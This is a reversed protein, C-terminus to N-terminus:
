VEESINAKSMTLEPPYDKLLLAQLDAKSLTPPKLLAEPKEVLDKLLMIARGSYMGDCIRDDFAYVVKVVDRQRMKGRSDPRWERRVIGLSIFLGCTGFDYLHHYPAEVGVSGVNTICVSGHFPSGRMLFRPMMNWSDLKRILWFLFRIIFRPFKLLTINLNESNNGAGRTAERLRKKFTDAINELTTLPSYNGFVWIEEADETLQKKAIFNIGIYNRQWMRYGITFRNLKPKLVITRVAATTFLQFFTVKAKNKVVQQRNFNRLFSLTDTIDIEQESFITGGVRSPMIFPVIRTHPSIDGLYDGDSRKKFMSVVYVPFSCNSLRRGFRAHFEFLVCM